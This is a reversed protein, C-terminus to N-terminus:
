PVLDEWEPCALAFVAYGKQIEAKTQTTDAQARTPLSGGWQRCLESTTAGGPTTTNACATLFIASLVIVFTTRTKM